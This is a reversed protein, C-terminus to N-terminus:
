QFAVTIFIPIALSIGVKPSDGTVFHGYNETVNVNCKMLHPKVPNTLPSGLM